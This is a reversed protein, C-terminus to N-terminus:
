FTVGLKFDIRNLHTTEKVPQNFEWETYHEELAQFRYGISMTYGLDGRVMNRIGLTLGGMLGGDFERNQGWWITPDFEPIGTKFDHFAAGAQLGVFPTFSGERFNWRADFFAPYYIAGKIGELGLGIGLQFHPNFMYGNIFHSSFNVNPNEWEDTGVMLGLSTNNFYGKTRTSPANKSFKVRSVGEFELTIIAGTRNILKVYEGHKYEKILGHITSGDKLEVRDQANVTSLVTLFLLTVAIKKM